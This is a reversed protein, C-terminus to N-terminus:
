FYWRYKRRISVVYSRLCRASFILAAYIHAASPFGFSAFNKPMTLADIALRFNKPPELANLVLRIETLGRLVIARATSVPVPADKPRGFDSGAIKHVPSGM